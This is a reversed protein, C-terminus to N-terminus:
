KNEIKELRELISQYQVQLQQKLLDIEEKQKEIVLQQEQTAKILVPILDSYYVGLIPSAVKKRNGQEDVEWDWDRVVEPLVQQLEQAILGLKTGSGDDKKWEFSVPRLQMLEELGYTLNQINKKERADSTNITGNSAFVTNWRNAGQGLSITADTMPMFRVGQFQYLDNVTVLDDGSNGITLNAGINYIRWDTNAATNRFFDLAVNSNAGVGSTNAIRVATLGAPGSVHVKQLPNNTGVGLNGAPTLRMRETSNPNFLIARSASNHGIELGNDNLEFAGTYGSTSNTGFTFNGNTHNMRVLANPVNIDMGGANGGSVNTSGFLAMAAGNASSGSQPGIFMYDTDNQYLLAANDASFGNTLLTRGAVHLREQPTTTGIGVNVTTTAGNIGSVSGLVLSNSTAVFSRAGIATSNELNSSSVNSFSGIGTNFSGITNTLLASNGIGINSSGTSTNNLAINGLAANNTGTTLDFLSAVGLHTNSLKIGGAIAGNRRFNLDINDNTGIFNSTSNLGSNGNISWFENTVPISVPTVIGGGGEPDIVNLVRHANVSFSASVQLPIQVFNSTATNVGAWNISLTQTVFPTVNVPYMVNIDWIPKNTTVGVIDEVSTQFGKLLSGNLLLDFFLPTQGTANYGSASFNVLVVSSKPTFTIEMQPMLTKSSTSTANTTGLATYYKTKGNNEELKVWKTGNWYHFGPTVENEGVGATVTNYVLTSEPLAGGSPNIVPSAVDASTLSVRPVMVGKNNSALDLLANPTSTGVGTAGNKLVVMADSREALDVTNNNNLDIANGIVFLRDTANATSFQTAGNTSPAFLTAGIGIVTEGYSSASNNFGFATSESAFAINNRGFVTSAQGIASSSTGFASSGIGSATVVNGIAVSGFGSARPNNGLAVSSTGINADDWNTSFVNGARFAAKRPNWVMRTGAGSPAAVGSGTTGTSVLGDTGNILVAGNDATITRGLGAGGFDYAQDLTGGDAGKLNIWSSTADDWYYFGPLNTGVPTTLYVLMGQQAVTPNTAPFTAVKPILIGDTNSPTAESSSKIELQAQPTTTNIGVQAFLGISFFLFSHLILKKMMTTKLFLVYKKLSKQLIFNVWDFPYWLVINDTTIKVTRILFFDTVM